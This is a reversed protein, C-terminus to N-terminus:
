SNIRNELDQDEPFSSKLECVTHRYMKSRIIVKMAKVYLLREMESVYCGLKSHYLNTFVCNAGTMNASILDYM